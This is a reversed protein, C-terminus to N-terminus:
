PWDYAALAGNVSDTVTWQVPETTAKCVDAVFSEQVHAPSITLNRFEVACGESQLQIRGKQPKAAFGRNVVKGNVEAVVKDGVCTLVVRNWEGIPRENVAVNVTNTDRWTRAIDSRCVRTNGRITYIDTGRPDHIAYKGEVVDKGVKATLAIRDSGKAGVGWFDGTAGKIINLELSEMWIGYFGGDQGTSHFLLGSDPAKGAKGCFQRGGLFRYELTLRYDSFEEESTLCGMEEGTVHIVGDRVSFVGHPDVNKGRGKLYTYWGSLDRGNFLRREAKVTPQGGVACVALGLAALVVVAIKGM